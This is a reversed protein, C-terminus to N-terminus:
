AKEEKALKTLVADAHSRDCYSDATAAVRLRDSM